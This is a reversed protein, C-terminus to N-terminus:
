PRRRAAGASRRRRDAGGSPAAPGRLLRAASSTAAHPRHDDGARGRRPPKVRMSAAGSAVSGEEARNEPASHRPRGVGQTLYACSLSESACGFSELSQLECNGPEAGQHRPRAARCPRASRARNRRILSALGVRALDPGGDVCSLESVGRHQDDGSRIPAVGGDAGDGADLLDTAKGAALRRRHQASHGAGDIPVPM